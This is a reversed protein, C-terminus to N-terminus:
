LLPVPAVCPEDRTNEKELIPFHLIPFFFFIKTYTRLKILSKKRDEVIPDAVDLTYHSFYLRRSVIGPASHRFLLASKEKRTKHRCKIRIALIGTM